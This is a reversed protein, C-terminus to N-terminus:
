PQLIGNAAVEEAKWCEIWYKITPHSAKFLLELSAYSIGQGRKNTQRMTYDWHQYTFPYEPDRERIKECWMNIHYRLGTDKISPRRFPRNDEPM